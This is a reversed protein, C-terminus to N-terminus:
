PVQTGFKDGCKIIRDESLDAKPSDAGHLSVTWGQQGSARCCLNPGMLALLGQASKAGEARRDTVVNSKEDSDLRRDNRMVCQTRRNALRPAIPRRIRVLVVRHWSSRFNNIRGAIRRPRVELAIRRNRFKVRRFERPPAVVEHPVGLVEDDRRFYLDIM